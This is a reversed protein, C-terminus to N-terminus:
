FIENGQWDLHNARGIWSQPTDGVGGRLNRGQQHRRRPPSSPPSSSSSTTTTIVHHNHHPHHYHPSSSSPPPSSSTTIIITINIISRSTKELSPNTISNNAIKL